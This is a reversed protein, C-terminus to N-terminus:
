ENYRQCKGIKAKALIVSLKSFLTKFFRKDDQMALELNEFVSHNQFVTPKQFKRGIGIQAIAPEDMELLNVAEGFIVHGEDPRTKGTVVDMMTSKGAGNAGIICRLEGYNISFSLNNLAKFGDFSVTVGDVLLIRKGKKLEGINHSNEHDLLIM